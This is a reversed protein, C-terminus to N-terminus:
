IVLGRLLFGVAFALAAAIGGIILTEIASRIPHKQVVKGKIGGVILFAIATLAISYKFQNPILGPYALALLFSILPIIGIIVFSIFTAFATKKPNKVLHRCKAKIKLENQSKTSLYNSVAMSFGDAILNAFGLILVIASGLSAGIAGAVIAFTTIAGDTGGYVFESLYRKEIGKKIIM